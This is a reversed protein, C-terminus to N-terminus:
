ETRLAIMPNVKTARRAPLYSACMAVLGFIAAIVVFTPLDLPTIGFLMGRLIRSGAAAGILGIMIGTFALMLGKQLMLGLVQTQQAGLAMRIGIEQTRQVVAYALVGYIGIAALIGAVAAFLGLLVAYFRQRTVSSAVLRELPIIADIGANPDVARVTQAVVPIMAGPDSRTRVAFSLLGLATQSQQPIPQKLRQVIDWLQRYDVFVEPFPDQELSENRLAEVLGVVRVDVRFTDFEWVVIEGVPNERGFLLSAAPRNIVIAPSGSAHDSTRLDRGAIFRNGMAPLFGETVSRLRPREANGRMEGLTKGQPVFTGYVIEEGILVGARSFGAFQVNPHSRLRALLADIANAKRSIPYDGPFVLQLALVNSADYGKEVTTLKVFSNILLGAGVLLVTAMVIQSVVLVSRMSADRRRAGGSRSGM